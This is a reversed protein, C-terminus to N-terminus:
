AIDEDKEIHDKLRLLGGRLAEAADAVDSAQKRTEKTVRESLTRFGDRVKEVVDLTEDIERLVKAEVM